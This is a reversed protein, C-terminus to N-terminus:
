KHRMWQSLFITKNLENGMYYVLFTDIGPMGKAHTPDINVFFDSFKESVTKSDITENGILLTFRTQM